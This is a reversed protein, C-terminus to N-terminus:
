PKMEEVRKRSGNCRQGFLHQHTLIFATKARVSFRIPLLAARMDFWVVVNLSDVKCKNQLM